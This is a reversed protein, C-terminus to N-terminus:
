RELFKEIRKVLLRTEASGAQRFRLQRDADFIYIAPFLRVQFKESLSRNADIVNFADVIPVEDSSITGVHVIVCQVDNGYLKEVQEVFKPWGKCQACESSWFYFVSVKQPSLHRESFLGKKHAQICDKVEPMTDLLKM